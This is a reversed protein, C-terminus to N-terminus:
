VVFFDYVLCFDYGVKLVGVNGGDNVDFCESGIVFGLVVLNGFGVDSFFFIWYNGFFGIIWDDIWM